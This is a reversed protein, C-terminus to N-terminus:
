DLPLPGAGQRVHEYKKRSLELQRTSEKLSQLMSNFSEALNRLEGSGTGEIRVDLNGRSVQLTADSLSRIPKLIKVILYLMFLHVAINLAGLGVQLAVLNQSERGSFEGLAKVLADSSAIMRASAAEIDSVAPGAGPPASIIGDVLIGYALWDDYVQQWDDRFDQRLPSLMIGDIEGGDRLALINAELNSLAAEVDQRDADGALYRETELLSIASLFRNKGAINISNGVLVNQGEVSALFSFSAAILAVEIGILIGIRTALGSRKM